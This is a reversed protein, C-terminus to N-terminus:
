QPTGMFRYYPVRALPVYPLATRAEAWAHRPCRRKLYPVHDPSLFVNDGAFWLPFLSRTWWSQSLQRRDPHKRAVFFDVAALTGGPKLMACANDIAAFWDPIMTLSYSFTVVDVREPPRFRTADAEIATVNHWGHRRIRGRAIELLSPSLDVVYVHKAAPLRHALCELNAATGGGLDVWTGGQPFPIQRFLEERGPLLRQRFRDYDTAQGAYFAELRAAHDAGRVPSLLLHYLVKLDALM